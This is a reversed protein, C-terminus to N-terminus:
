GIQHYPPKGPHSEYSKDKPPTADDYYARAFREDADLRHSIESCLTDLYRRLIENDNQRLRTALLEVEKRKEIYWYIDVRLGVHYNRQHPSLANIVKDMRDLLTVDEDVRGMEEMKSM